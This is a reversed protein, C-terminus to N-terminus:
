GEMGGGQWQAPRLRSVVGPKGPNVRGVLEPEGDTPPQFTSSDGKWFHVSM